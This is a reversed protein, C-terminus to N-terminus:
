SLIRWPERFFIDHSWEFFRGYLPDLEYVLSERGDRAFFKKMHEALEPAVREPTPCMFIMLKCLSWDDDRFEANTMCSAQIWARSLSAFRQPCFVQVPTAPPPPFPKQENATDGLEM